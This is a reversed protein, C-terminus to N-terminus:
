NHWKIDNETKDTCTCCCEDRGSGKRKEIVWELTDEPDKLSSLDDFGLFVRLVLWLVGSNLGSGAVLFLPLWNFFGSMEPAMEMNLKLISISLEGHTSPALSTM